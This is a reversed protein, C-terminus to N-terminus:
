KEAEMHEVSSVCSKLNLLNMFRSVNLQKLGASILPICASEHYSIKPLYQKLMEYYTLKSSFEGTFFLPVNQLDFGATNIIFLIYYLLDNESAYLFTNYLKLKGNATCAIDFFDPNLGVFVAPQNLSDSGSIINRIFPTTQNFFEVKKFHLTILKVLEVPLAFVNHIGPPDIKNNFLEPDIDGGLSYSLYDQMISSDFSKEPVLTSQQTYGIFRVRHYKLNLYEDEKLVATIERILDGTLIVKEFRYKRFLIYANMDDDAICYTLGNSNAQISISYKQSSEQNFSRDIFNVEYM